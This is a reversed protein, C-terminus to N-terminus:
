PIDTDPDLGGGTELALEEESNRDHEKRLRQAVGEFLAFVRDIAEAAEPSIPRDPTRFQHENIVTRRDSFLPDRSKLWFILATMNGRSVEEILKSQALENISTAGERLAAAVQVAFDADEDRWRYFTARSIGARKVAVQIIPIKTLLELLQSKQARIRAETASAKAKPM